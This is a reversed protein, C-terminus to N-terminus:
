RAPVGNIGHRSSPHNHLIWYLAVEAVRNVYASLSVPKVVYSNAGLAYSDHLDSADGSATLMVVPITRARADEKLRRLVEMGNIVPLEIELLILKCLSAPSRALFGDLGFVLNIASAGDKAHVVRTEPDINRLARLSLEADDANHEVLM